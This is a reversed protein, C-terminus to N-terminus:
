RLREFEEVLVDVLVESPDLRYYEQVPVSIKAVAAAGDAELVELLILSDFSKWSFAVVDEM